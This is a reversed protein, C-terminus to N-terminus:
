AAAHTSEKRSKKNPRTRMACLKEYDELEKIKFFRLRGIYIPKPFDPDTQLRRVLFMHSVSYRNQVEPATLYVASPTQKKAM